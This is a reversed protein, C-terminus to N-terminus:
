HGSLIFRKMFDPGTLELQFETLRQVRQYSSSNASPRTMEDLGEGDGSACHGIPLILGGALAKSAEPGGNM